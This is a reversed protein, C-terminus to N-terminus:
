NLVEIQSPNSLMIEPRGRFDQVMGRIRVHKATLGDLDFNRFARRDEPQIVASFGRQWDSSFDIFIRGGSGGVNTVWGDVVQFSGTPASPMQQPTRPAYTATATTGAWLGVHRARARGEAEYLDPACENRDPAIQVRALGDELLAVQMWANQNPRGETAQAFGQARIRDYRDEKPPTSTFTVTGAKAMDSLRALAQAKLAGEEPLRIGELLVARGDRLIIAGNQEVRLVHADRVEVSGACDPIIAASAGWLPCMAALISFYILRM